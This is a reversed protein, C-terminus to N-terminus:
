WCSVPPPKLYRVLSDLALSYALWSATRVSAPAPKVAVGGTGVPPTGCHSYSVLKLVLLVTLLGSVSIILLPVEVSFTQETDTAGASAVVVSWVTILAASDTEVGASHRILWLDSLPVLAM